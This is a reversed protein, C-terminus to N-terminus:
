YTYRFGKQDHEQASTLMNYHILITTRSVDNYELELEGRDAKKNLM